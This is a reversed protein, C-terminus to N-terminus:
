STSPALLATTAIVIAVVSIAATAIGQFLVRKRLADIRAILQGNQQALTAIVESAALMQTHLDAVATEARELRALMAAPTLAAADVTEIAGPQQKRRSVADWLKRAAGAAEPAAKIVDSWPVM